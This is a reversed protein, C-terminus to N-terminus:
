ADTSWAYTGDPARWLRVSGWDDPHIVLATPEAFGAAPYRAALRRWVYARPCPRWARKGRWCGTAHLAEWRWAIRDAPLIIPRYVVEAIEM